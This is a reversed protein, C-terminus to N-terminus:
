NVTLIETFFNEFISSFFTELWAIHPEWEMGGDIQSDVKKGGCRSLFKHDDLHAAMSIDYHALTKLKRHISIQQWFHKM